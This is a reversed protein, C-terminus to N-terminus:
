RWQQKIALAFDSREGDIIEPGPPSNAESRQYRTRRAEGLVGETRKGAHTLDLADGTLRQPREAGVVAGPELLEEHLAALQELAAAVM